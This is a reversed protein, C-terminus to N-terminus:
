DLVQDLVFIKTILILVTIIFYLMYWFYNEKITKKTITFYIGFCLNSVFSVIPIIMKNQWQYSLYILICDMIALVYNIINIVPLKRKKRYKASYVVYLIITFLYLLIQISLILLYINKEATTHIHQPQPQEIFEPQQQRKPNLQQAHFTNEVHKDRRNYTQKLTAMQQRIKDKRKKNKTKILQRKYKNLESQYTKYNKEKWEELERETSPIPLNQLNSM